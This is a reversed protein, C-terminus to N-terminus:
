KNKISIESKISSLYKKCINFIIMQSDEALEMNNENIQIYDNIVNKCEGGDFALLAFSYINNANAFKIANLINKSNGSGSLVILIDNKSAKVKLQYSFINEYGIDNSLCTIVAQNAVLSEISLGPLIPGEGTAGVGYLFDNAIHISNAGSGGNGCIFIKRNNEWASLLLSSLIEIKEFVEDDFSNFLDDLYNQAVIKIEKKKM